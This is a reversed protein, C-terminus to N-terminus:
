SMAMRQSPQMKEEVARGFARLLNISIEDACHWGATKYIIYESNKGSVLFANQNLHSFHYKEGLVTAVFEM